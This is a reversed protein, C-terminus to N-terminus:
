GVLQNQLSAEKLGPYEEKLMKRINSKKLWLYAADGGWILWAVAGRYKKKDSESVKTTRSIGPQKAQIWKRYGRYSTGGNQADPGHRAFWARMVKLDYCPISADNALQRARAWGTASGGEFGKKRLQLGKQAEMRVDKPISTQQSTTRTPM